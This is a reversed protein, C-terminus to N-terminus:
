STGGYRHIQRNGDLFFNGPDAGLCRLMQLSMQDWLRKHHGIKSEHM